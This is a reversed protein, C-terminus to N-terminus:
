RNLREAERSGRKIKDVDPAHQFAYGKFLDEADYDPKIAHVQQLQEAAMEPM